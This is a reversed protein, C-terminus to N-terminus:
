TDLRRLEYVAAIRDGNWAYRLHGSQRVHSVLRPRFVAVCQGSRRRVSDYCVGNSGLARLERGLAQSAVYSTPSLVDRDHATAGRLDHFRGSIDLLYCRMDIEM